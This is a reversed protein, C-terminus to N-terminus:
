EAKKKAGSKDPMYIKVLSGDTLTAQMDRYQALSIRHRQESVRICPTSPFESESITGQMHSRDSDFNLLYKEAPITRIYMRYDPLLTEPVPFCASFYSNKDVPFELRSDFDYIASGSTTQVGSVDVKNINRQLIVHYDWVVPHGPPVSKQMYLVIKEAPNSLFLVTLSKRDVGRSILSRCLHYINEECFLPTYIFDNSKM